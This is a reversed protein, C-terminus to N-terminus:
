AEESYKGKTLPDEIRKSKKFCETSAETDGGHINLLAKVERGALSTKKNNNSGNAINLCM